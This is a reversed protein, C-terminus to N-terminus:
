RRAVRATDTPAPATASDPKVQIMIGQLAADEEALEAAGAPVNNIKFIYAVVDTYQRRTLSGPMDQPMTETLNHVLDLVSRGAWSSIFRDHSWDSPSHCSSCVEQSVVDGRGAQEETYVGEWISRGTPAPADQAQVVTWTCGALALTRVLTKTIRMM